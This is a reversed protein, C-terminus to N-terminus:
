SLSDGKKINTGEEGNRHVTEDGVSGVTCVEIMLMGMM